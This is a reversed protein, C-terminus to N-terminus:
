ATPTSRTTAAREAAHERGIFIRDCTSDSSSPRSSCRSPWGDGSDAANRLQNFRASCISGFVANWVGDSICSANSATSALSRDYTVVVAFSSSHIAFTPPWSRFACADARSGFQRRRWGLRDGDFGFRAALSLQDRVSCRSRRPDAASCSGSGAVPPLTNRLASGIAACIADYFAADFLRAVSAPASGLPLRRWRADERVARFRPAPAQERHWSCSSGARESLGGGTTSSGSGIAARIADYSGSQTGRARSGGRARSDPSSRRSWASAVSANRLGAPVLPRRPGEEPLQLLVPMRHWLIGADVFRRRCRPASSFCWGCVLAPAQVAVSGACFGNRCRRRHITPRCRARLLNGSAAIAPPSRRAARRSRSTISARAAAAM